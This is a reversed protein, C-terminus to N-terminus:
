GNAITVSLFLNSGNTAAAGSTCVRMTPLTQIIQAITRYGSASGYDTGGLPKTLSSAPVSYLTAWTVGSDTSGQIDITETGHTPATGASNQQAKIVVTGISSLLPKFAPATGTIASSMATSSLLTITHM